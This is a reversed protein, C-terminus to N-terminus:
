PARGTDESMALHLQTIREVEDFVDEPHPGWEHRAKKIWDLIERLGEQMGLAARILAADAKRRAVLDLGRAEAYEVMEQEPHQLIAPGVLLDGFAGKTILWPGPTHTTM